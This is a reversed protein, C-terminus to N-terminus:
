SRLDACGWPIKRGFPFGTRGAYSACNYHIASCAAGPESRILSRHSAQDPKRVGETRPLLNRMQKLPPLTIEPFFVLVLTPLIPFRRRRELKRFTTWNRRERPASGITGFHRCIKELYRCVELRIGAAQRRALRFFFQRDGDQAARKSYKLKQALISDDIQLPGM